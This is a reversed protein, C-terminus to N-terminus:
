TASVARIRLWKFDCAERQWKILRCRLAVEWFTGKCQDVQLCSLVQWFSSKRRM